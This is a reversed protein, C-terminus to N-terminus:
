EQKGFALRRQSPCFSGHQRKNKARRTPAHRLSAPVLRNVSHRIDLLQEARALRLLSYMTERLLYRERSSGLSHSATSLFEEILQDSVNSTM